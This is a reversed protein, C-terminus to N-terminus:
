PQPRPRPMPMPWSGGARGALANVVVSRVEPDRSDILRALADASEDGIAGLARIYAFRMDKETEKNLAAELLPVAAPDAIQYIAWAAVYRVGKDADGLADIVARPAKEPETNGLAWIAVKRIATSGDSLAATLAPVAEEGGVNGLAWAAMEKVEADADRRLAESLADLVDKRNEGRALAWAAMERVDSDADRRLATALASGVDERDAFNALGWAAVRRLSASTDSRLVAMLLGARDEGRRQQLLSHLEPPVSDQGTGSVEVATPRSTSASTSTDVSTQRSQRSSTVQDVTAGPVIKAEPADMDVSTPAALSADLTTDLAQARSAPVAGGVVVVLAGLATALSLSQWRGFRRRLDPDLIALMRGEFERRHAMPIAAVPTHPQRINSVIDLLHEAYSTARLGCTLALDDCARESEIRLRRAATWVLPHFWYLACALRGLTHGLLDRRKIHALEHMLVASRREPLWADSEAPLVITPTVLGCAFPMKVADSRVLRPAHEIGLRDAIEYMPGTWERAKLLEGRRVIRRVSLFGFLLWLCFGASAAAWAVLALQWPNLARANSTTVPADEVVIPAVAPEAPIRRPDVTAAPAPTVPGPPLAVQTTIASPLIALRLPSWVSLMPLVLVAGVIGVWVLHRAGASARQLLATAGLAAILLLTAKGLL